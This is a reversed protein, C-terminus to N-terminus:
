YDTNLNTLVPQTVDIERMKMSTAQTDQTDPRMAKMAKNISNYAPETLSNLLDNTVTWTTFYGEQSINHTFETVRFDENIRYSTGDGRKKAEVHVKQGPWLGKVMSTTFKGTLPTGSLRLYEAYALKSITGTVTNDAVVDDKAYDDTVVKMLCTDNASFVGAQRVVRAVWGAFYLGDVNMISAGAAGNYYQLGIYDIDSWDGGATQVWDSNPGIPLSIFNWQDPELLPAITKSYYDGNAHAGTGLFLFPNVAPGAPADVGVNSDPYLLLNITPINYEGGVKTLDLNLDATSPYWARIGEGGGTNAEATTEISKIGVTFLVADDALSGAAGGGALDLFTWSAVNGETFVDRPAPHKWAGYYVLYNSQKAAKQFRFGKFDEGQRFTADTADAGFLYNTWGDAVAQASHSGIPQVYLKPTASTDVLWHAGANTGKYGQYLNLMENISKYVPLYPFSMYRLVQALNAADIETNYDHGATTGSNLFDEVYEPVIGDDADTLIESITDLDAAVQSGYEAAVMMHMLAYGNGELKIHLMDSDSLSPEIAPAIRGRLLTTYAAETGDKVQVLVSDGADFDAVWHRADSDSFDITGIDIGNERRTVSITKAYDDVYENSNITLKYMPSQM